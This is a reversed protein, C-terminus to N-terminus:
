HRMENMAFDADHIGFIVTDTGAPRYPQEAGHVAYMLSPVVM